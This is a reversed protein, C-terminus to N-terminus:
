CRHSADSTAQWLRVAIIAGIASLGRLQRHPRQQADIVLCPDGRQSVTQDVEAVLDDGGAARQGRELGGTHRHGGDAIDGGEGSIRSPRTLVSCGCMWPPNSARRSSGACMLASSACWCRGSRRRRRWDRDRRRFPREGRRRAQRRAPASRCRHDRGHDAGRGLIKGPDDDQGVRGVVGGREVLQAVASQRGLSPSGQRRLRKGVRRGVVRHHRLVQAIGLLPGLLDGERAPQRPRQAVTLVRLLSGGGVPSQPRALRLLPHQLGFLEGALLQREVVEEVRVGGPVGHLPNVWGATAMTLCVIGQPSDSRPSRAVANSSAKRPSGTEAKPPMTARLRGTSPSVARRMASIKKSTTTAGPNSSSVSSVSPLLFDRRRNRM